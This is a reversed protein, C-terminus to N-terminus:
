GPNPSVPPTVLERYAKRTLLFLLTLIPVCLACVLSLSYRLGNSSPFLHDTMFGVLLPGIGLGVLNMATLQAASVGARLQNPIVTQIAIPVGVFGMPLLILYPLFLALALEPTPMLPAAVGFLGAGAFSFASVEVPGELRGRRKLWDSLWGAAPSGVLAGVLVLAGIWLGTERADWGYVRIFLTPMWISVSFIMCTATSAASILLILFKQRTGLAALTERFPMKQPKGALGRRQPERLLFFLPALIMGPLAAITIAAQWPSAGYLTGPDRAVLDDLWRILLGGIMYALSTGISASMVFLGMARGLKSPPFYDSILSYGAPVVSAEGIGVGMRCIFLQTYNRALATSLSFVSFLAVGIGIITRRSFRDALIGIPIAMLVYFTGFAISKLAGFQTDTLGYQQKIPEIMLNIIARDMSSIISGVMLLILAMRALGPAPWGTGDQLTQAEQPHAANNDASALSFAPNSHAIGEVDKQAQMSDESM